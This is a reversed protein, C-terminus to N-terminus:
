LPLLRDFLDEGVPETQEFSYDPVHYIIFLHIMYQIPIFPTEIYMTHFPIPCYSSFTKPKSSGVWPVEKDDIHMSGHSSVANQTGMALKM